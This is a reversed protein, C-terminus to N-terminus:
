PRLHKLGFRRRNGPYRVPSSPSPPPGGGIIHPLVGSDPDGNRFSLQRREYKKRDKRNMKREDSSQYKDQSRNGIKGSSITQGDRLEFAVPELNARLGWDFDVLFQQVKRPTLWIYRENKTRDTARITQLDVSVYSLNPDAIRVADAFVCHGSNREVADDIMEQTAKARLRPARRLPRSHKEM